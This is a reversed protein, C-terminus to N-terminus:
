RGLARWQEAFFRAPPRNALAPAMWDRGPVVTGRSTTYGTFILRAYPFGNEATPNWRFSLRNRGDGSLTQSRYFEGTDYIDRPSSVRRGSRRVTTRPWSFQATQIEERLQAGLDQGYASLIRPIRETFRDGQWRTIRLTANIRVSM